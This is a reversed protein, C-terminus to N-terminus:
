EGAHDEEVLRDVEVPHLRMQQRDIAKLRPQAPEAASRASALASPNAPDM